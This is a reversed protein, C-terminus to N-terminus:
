EPEVRRFLRIYQDELKVVVHQDEIAFHVRLFCLEELHLGPLIAV